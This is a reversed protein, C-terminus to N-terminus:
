TYRLLTSRVTEENIRFPDCAGRDITYNTKTIASHLSSRLICPFGDQVQYVQVETVNWYVEDDPPEESIDLGAEYLKQTFRAAAHPQTLEVNRLLRKAYETVCRADPDDAHSQELEVCRLLLTECGDWSLQEATNIQITRREHGALAKCEVRLAGFDFDQAAAAPGVWATISQDEGFVPFLASDLTHLEGFLGAQDQVSLGKSGKGSLLRHWRWIRQMMRESAQSENSCTEVVAVIDQCLVRFIDQKATDLLTVVVSAQDGSGIAIDISLGTLKPPRLSRAVERSLEVLLLPTRRSDIGWSLIVSAHSTATKTTLSGRSPTTLALWPDRLDTMAKRRMRIAM